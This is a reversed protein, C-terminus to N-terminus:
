ADRRLWQLLVFLWLLILFGVASVIIVVQRDTTWEFARRPSEEESSSVIKNPLDLEPQPLEKFPCPWIEPTTDGIMPLPKPANPCKDPFFTYYGGYNRMRIEESDVLDVPASIRMCPTTQLYGYTIDNKSGNAVCRPIGNVRVLSEDSPCTMAACANVGNVSVSEFGQRCEPELSYNNLPLPWREVIQPEISPTICQKTNTYDFQKGIPCLCRGLAEKTAVDQYGSIVFHTDPQKLCQKKTVFSM